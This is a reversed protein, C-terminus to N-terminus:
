ETEYKTFFCLTIKKAFSFTKCIYVYVQKLKLIDLSYIHIYIYIQAAPQEKGFNLRGNIM